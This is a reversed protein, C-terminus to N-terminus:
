NELNYTKKFYNIASNKDYFKINDIIAYNNSQVHRNEYKEIPFLNNLNYFINVMEKKSIAWSVPIKHGIDWYVGYNNWSMEPTFQNELHIKFEEISFNCIKLISCTKDAKVYKKLNNRLNTSLNDHLSFLIDTHRRIKRRTNFITRYHEKNDKRYQKQRSCVLEKNRIYWNHKTIKSKTYKLLKSCKKSCTKQSGTSNNFKKNCIPCTRFKLKRINDRKIKQEISYMTDYCKISCYYHAPKFKKFRKNCYKCYSYM